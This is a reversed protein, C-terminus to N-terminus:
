CYVHAVTKETFGRFHYIERRSLYFAGGLWNQFFFFFYTGLNTTRRRVKGEYSLLLNNRVDRKSTMRSKTQDFSKARNLNVSKSKLNSLILGKMRHSLSLRNGRQHDLGATASRGIERAQEQHPLSAVLSLQSSEFSSKCILSKTTNSAKGTVNVPPQVHTKSCTISTGDAPHISVLSDRGPAHCKMPVYDGLFCGPERKKAVLNQSPLQPISTPEDLNGLCHSKCRATLAKNRHIYESEKKLGSRLEVVNKSGLQLHTKVGGEIKSGSARKAAAPLKAINPGFAKAYIPTDHIMLKIQSKSYECNQIIRPRSHWIQYKNGLEEYNLQRSEPINDPTHRPLLTHAEPVPKSVTKNAYAFMKMRSISIEVVRLFTCRFDVISDPAQFAIRCASFAPLPTVRFPLTAVRRLAHFGPHPM